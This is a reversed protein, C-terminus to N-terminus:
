RANRMVVLSDILWAIRMCLLASATSSARGATNASVLEPKRKPSALRFATSKPLLLKTLKPESTQPPLATWNSHGRRIRSGVERGVQLLSPNGVM